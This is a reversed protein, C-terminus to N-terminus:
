APLPLSSLTDFGNGHSLWAARAKATAVAGSLTWRAGAIKLRATAIQKCASEVTGSGIWYGKKRYSGYNMRHQNNTYYTLARQAAQAASPHHLYRQCARIVKRTKGKWLWGKVKHLWTQQQDNQSFVAEAIPTLYACAHYWDVIQIADPFYHSVLKWIWAAGDCVFILEKAKDALRRVGTAWLLRGFVQAPAIESHYSIEQAKSQAQGYVAGVRYWSLSKLERWEEGIPVQAGDISGYLREPVHAIRRERSQLWAEDQSEQIWGAELYVQKEGILQTQKRITNDSVEIRLFAKITKRARDFAIEVGAIALLKGLVPSVEGPSIGWDKDLQHRKEGCSMCGYYSRQYRVWGFVTMVQASRKLIRKAQGGCECRVRKGLKSDEKELVKGYSQQGIVKMMERIGNELEGIEKIEEEEILEGIEEAVLKSMEEIAKTSFNM